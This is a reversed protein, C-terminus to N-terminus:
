KNQTHISNVGKNGDIMCYFRKMLFYYLRFVLQVSVMEVAPPLVIMLTKKVNFALSVLNVLVALVMSWIQALVQM